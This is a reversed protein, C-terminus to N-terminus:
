VVDSKLEKPIRDKFHFTNALKNQSKLVIQLKFCIFIGKICKRLKTRTELSLPGLYSLILFLPIKPVAIVKEQKRQKNDLFMQFCSNIFNEPYGNSRFVNILKVLELHFNTWVSYICSCRYLM